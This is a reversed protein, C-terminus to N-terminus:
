PSPFGSPFRLPVSGSLSPRLSPVLPRRGFPFWLFASSPSSGSPLRRSVPPFGSPSVPPRSILGWVARHSGPSKPGCARVPIFWAARRAPGPRPPRPGSGRASSSRLPWYSTTTFGPPADGTPGPMPARPDCLTVAQINEVPEDRVLGADPGLHDGGVGGAGGFDDESKRPRQAVPPCRPQGVQGVQPQPADVAVGVVAREVSTQARRPLGRPSSPRSRTRRKHAARPRQARPPEGRLGCRSNPPSRGIRM